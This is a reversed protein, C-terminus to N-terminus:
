SLFLLFLILCAVFWTLSLLLFEILDRPGDSASDTKTNSANIKSGFLATWWQHEQHPEIDEEDVDEPSKGVNEGRGSGILTSEALFPACQVGSTFMWLSEFVDPGLADVPVFSFDSQGKDKLKMEDETHYAGEIDISGSLMIHGNFWNGAYIQTGNVRLVGYGHLVDDQWNGELIISTSTVCSDMYELVGQGSRKGKDDVDGKYNWRIARDTESEEYYLHLDGIEVEM